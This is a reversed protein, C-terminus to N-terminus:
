VVRLSHSSEKVLNAAGTLSVHTITVNVNGEFRSVFLLASSQIYSFSQEKYKFDFYPQKLGLETYHLIPIAAYTFEGLGEYLPASNLLNSM